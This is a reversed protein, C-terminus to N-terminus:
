ILQLKNYSLNLNTALFQAPNPKITLRKVRSKHNSEGNDPPM